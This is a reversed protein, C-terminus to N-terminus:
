RSLPNKLRFVVVLLILTIAILALRGAWIQFWQWGNIEAPVKVEVPVPVPISDSHMASDQRLKILQRIQERLENTEILWAREAAKLRIGYQAMATSDLERVVTTKETKVSDHQIVSDTHWHHETSVQPVPVYKTTTCSTLMTIMTCIALGVAISVLMGVFSLLVSRMSDGHQRDCDDPDYPSMWFDNPNHFPYIM